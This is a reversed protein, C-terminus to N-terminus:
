TKFNGDPYDGSARKRLLSVANRRDDSADAQLERDNATLQAVSQYLHSALFIEAYDQKYTYLNADPLHHYRNRTPFWPHFDGILLWGGEATVRDLEAVSQLLNARDVWHLVFNVIVLEFPGTVPLQRAHGEHFEVTPYRQRGDAVALSSPEVAVARTGFRKAIEAIRYGNAAGVELVSRPKMQYLSLLKLPLDNDLDRGLATLNRQFWRDSEAALFVEDQTSM